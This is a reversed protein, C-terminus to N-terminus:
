LACIYGIYIHDGLQALTADRGIVSKSVWIVTRVRVCSTLQLLNLVM